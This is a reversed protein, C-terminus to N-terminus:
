RFLMELWAFRSHKDREREGTKVHRGIADKSSVLPIEAGGAAGTSSFVVITESAGLLTRLTRKQGLASIPPELNNGHL